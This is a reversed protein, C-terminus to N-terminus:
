RFHELIIFRIRQTFHNILDLNFISTRQAMLFSLRVTLREFAECDSVM